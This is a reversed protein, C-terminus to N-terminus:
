DRGRAVKYISLLTEAFQEAANKAMMLLGLAEAQRLGELKIPRNVPPDVILAM